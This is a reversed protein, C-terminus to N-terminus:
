QAEPKPQGAPGPQGAAPPRRRTPTTSTVVATIAGQMVEAPSEGMHGELFDRGFLGYGPCRREPSTVGSGQHRM